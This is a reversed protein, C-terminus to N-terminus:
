HKAVYGAFFIDYTLFRVFCTNEESFLDHEHGIIGSTYLMNM